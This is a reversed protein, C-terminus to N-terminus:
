SFVAIARRDKATLEHSAAPPDNGTITRCLVGPHQVGSCEREGNAQLSRPRLPCRAAGPVCDAPETTNRLTGQLEELLAM